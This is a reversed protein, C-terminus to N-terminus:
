GGQLIKQYIAERRGWVIKVEDWRQRSLTLLQGTSADACLYKYIVDSPGHYGMSKLAQCWEDFDVTDSGDKDLFDYAVEVSGFTRDVYQLLELIALQLEKLLYEMVQWEEWSISGGRDPDLYRFLEVAKESDKFERWGLRDFAAKFEKLSLKGNGDPGDIMQFAARLNHKFHRMVHVLFTSVAEPVAQVDAWWIVKSNNIEVNWGGYKLMNEVRMDLSRDEPAAMYQWSLLGSPITPLDKWTAPVGRDFAFETKDALVLRPQRLNGLRGPSEKMNMRVTLCAAVRDEPINTDFAFRHQEPQIFPFLTLTGLRLRLEDWEEPAVRSAVMKMNQPDSLRLILFTLVELRFARDGFVAVLQRCQAASLFVRDAIGRLVHVKAEQQLPAQSLQVMMEDWRDAPFAITDKAPRRWTVFDLSLLETCPLIWESLSRIVASQHMCNRVSSWNSYKSRDELGKARAVASEWADLMKLMEAVAFDSPQTLNLAYRGTPCDANFVLLRECRKYVKIYERLRPLHTLALFLRLQSRHVGPLLSVMADIGNFSDEGIQAVFEYELTFDTSLADLVLQQEDSRSKLSRFHALLPVVKRISLKRRLRAKAQPWLGWASSMLFEFCPLAGFVVNLSGSLSESLTKHPSSDLSALHFLGGEVEMKRILSVDAELVQPDSHILVAMGTVTFLDITKQVHDGVHVNEELSVYSKLRRVTDFGPTGDVVGEHYSILSVMEGAKLFPSPPVEPLRDFAEPNLFADVCVGVQTYGTLAEALPMWAGAAGHCRSNVEVLCPGEATMMVETHTAGNTVKLADLCGKSYAILSKAMPEDALVCKQGFNVFDGGNAARRDYVWVMTTKHVGNRSVIDVIYETGKLFEQLLVAAGQAGCKRQSNMLLEFHAQAEEVTCCKKVGDSGASEVPKVIIPFEEQSAFAAVESWKTGCASRVSRLGAAKVAEQQVRKDRRNEMGHATSNGRLGMSEALADAVKVGTEGGCMVAVLEKGVTAKRIAESTAKLTPQEDLECLFKEPVGRAATPYHGRNLTSQSLSGVNWEAFFAIFTMGAGGCLGCLTLVLTLVVHALAENLCFFFSLIGDTPVPYVGGADKGTPHQFKAPSRSAAPSAPSPVAVLQQFAQNFDLNVAECTKYLLRLLSRAHSLSLDLKYHGSPESARYGCHGESFRSEDSTGQCGVAELMRLGCSPQGLLRLLCRLGHVGFPNQGVYLEQLKSHKALSDELILASTSTLRNMSLDLMTLSSNRGLGELFVHMSPQSGILARCDCNPLHLERLRKHSALMDGLSQLAEESFSNWGLGLVELSPANLVDQLCSAAAPHHGLGTDQLRLCRIAPHLHVASCLSTLTNSSIKIGSIDLHRLKYLGRTEVLLSVITATARPGAGRCRALDLKELSDMAPRGFLKQLFTYLVTDSLQTSGALCVEKIRDLHRIMTSMALLEDDLLFESGSSIAHSRVMDLVAATPVVGTANCVRIYHMTASDEEAEPERKGTQTRVESQWPQLFPEAVAELSFPPMRLAPQALNPLSRSISMSTEEDEPLPTMVRRQPKSEGPNWWGSGSSTASSVTESMGKTGQRSRERSGLQPLMPVSRSGPRPGRLRKSARRSPELFRGLDFYGREQRTAPRSDLDVDDAEPIQARPKHSVENVIPLRKQNIDRRHQIVKRAAQSRKSKLASHGITSESEQAGVNTVLKADPLQRNYAARYLESEEQQGPMSSPAPLMWKSDEKHYISWFAHPGNEGARFQRHLKTTLAAEAERRDRLARRFALLECQRNVAEQLGRFRCVILFIEKSVMRARELGDLKDALREKWFTNVHNRLRECTYEFCAIQRARRWFSRDAFIGQRRGKRDSPSATLSSDKVADDDSGSSDEPYWQHKRVIGSVPRM